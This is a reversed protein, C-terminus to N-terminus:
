RSTSRRSRRNPCGCSGSMTGGSTFRRGRAALVVFAAAIQMSWSSARVGGSPRLCRGLDTYLYKTFLYGARQHYVPYILILLVTIKLLGKLAEVHCQATFVPAQVGQLPSIRSLKPRLAERFGAAQDSFTGGGGAAAAAAM